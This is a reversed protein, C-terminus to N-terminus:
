YMTSVCGVPPYIKQYLNKADVFIDLSLSIERKKVNKGLRVFTLYYGLWVIYKTVRFHKM